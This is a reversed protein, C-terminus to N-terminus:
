LMKQEKNCHRVSEIQAATSIHCLFVYKLAYDGDLSIYVTQTDYNNLYEGTTPVVGEALVITKLTCFCREPVEFIFYSTTDLKAYIPILCYKDESYTPLLLM